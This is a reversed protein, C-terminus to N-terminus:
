QASRYRRDAQKHAAGASGAGPRTPGHHTTGRLRALLLRNHLTAPSKTIAWLTERAPVFARRADARRATCRCPRFRQLSLGCCEHRPSENSVGDANRLELEGRIPHRPRVARATSRTRSGDRDRHSHRRGGCRREIACHRHLDVLRGGAHGEARGRGFRSRTRGSVDSFGVYSSPAAIMGPEALRGMTTPRWDGAIETPTSVWIIAIFRSAM